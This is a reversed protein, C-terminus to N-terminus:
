TEPEPEVPVPFAFVPRPDITEPTRGSEDRGDADHVDNYDWSWKGLAVLGHEPCWEGVQEAGMAALLLGPDSLLADLVQEAEARARPTHMTRFKALMNGREIDHDLRAMAGLQILQERPKPTGPDM